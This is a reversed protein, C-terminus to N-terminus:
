TKYEKVLDEVESKIRENKIHSVIASSDVIKDVDQLIDIKYVESVAEHDDM